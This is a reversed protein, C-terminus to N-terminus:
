GEGRDRCPCSEGEAVGDLSPCREGPHAVHLCHRCAEPPRMGEPVYRLLVDHIMTRFRERVLPDELAIEAIAQGLARAEEPTDPTPSAVLAARAGSCFGSMFVDLLAGEGEVVVGGIM